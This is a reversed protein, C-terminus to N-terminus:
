DGGIAFRALEIREYPTKEGCEYLLGVTADPLAVLCSYASPGAHIERVTTWTQGDDGSARVTM